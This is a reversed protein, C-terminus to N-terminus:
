KGHAKSHILIGKDTFRQAFHLAKVELRGTRKSDQERQIRITDTQVKSRIREEVALAEKEYGASPCYNITILIEAPEKKM